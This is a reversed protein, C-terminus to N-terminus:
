KRRLGRADEWRVTVEELQEYSLPQQNRRESILPEFRRYTCILLSGFRLRCMEEDFAGMNIGVAVREWWSLYAWLANLAKKNQLISRVQDSALGESLPVTWDNDIGLSELSETLKAQLSERDMSNIAMLTNQFVAIRRSSKIQYVIGVVSSMSIVSAVAQIVSTWEITTM